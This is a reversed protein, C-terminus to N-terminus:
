HGPGTGTGVKDGGSHPLDEDEEVAAADTAAPAVGTPPVPEPAVEPAHAPDAAVPAPAEAVPAAAEPKCASLAGCLVIVALALKTIKM